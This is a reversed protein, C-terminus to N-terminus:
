SASSESWGLYLGSLGVDTDRLWDNNVSSQSSLVAWTIGTRALTQSDGLPPFSSGSPCRPELGGNFRRTPPQSAFSTRREEALAAIGPGCLDEYM